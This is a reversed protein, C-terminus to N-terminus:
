YMFKMKVEANVKKKGPEIPTAMEAAFAATKLLREGESSQEVVEIPILRMVGLEKGIQIGKETGNQIALRLAQNYYEEENELKLQLSSVHNVGSKVALDIIKGISNINRVTVTISNRVEYGRFTQKGDIYDYRPLVQYLSTQIDTRLIGFAIIAEIVRSTIKANENQVDVVNNGETVVDFQIEAIDPTVELTGSGTVTIVRAVHQFSPKM